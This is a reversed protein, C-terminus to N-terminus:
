VHDQHSCVCVVWDECSVVGQEKLLFQLGLQDVPEGRDFVDGEDAAPGVISHAVQSLFDHGCGSLTNQGVLRDRRRPNSEVLNEMFKEVLIDLIDELRFQLLDAAHTIELVMVEDIGEVEETVKAREDVM